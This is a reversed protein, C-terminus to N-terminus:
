QLHESDFLSLIDAGEDSDILKLGALSQLVVKKVEMIVPDKAGFERELDLLAKYVAPLISRFM